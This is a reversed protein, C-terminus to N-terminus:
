TGPDPAAGHAHTHTQLGVQDSGGQGAVISGTATINGTVAINGTFTLTGPSGSLKVTANGDNTLTISSGSLDYITVQGTTLNKPRSPRHGTAIVVSSMPDGGSALFAVEANIPPNCSFGFMSLVTAKSRLALTNIQVQATQVPGTDDILTVIGCGIAHHLRAYMRELTALM